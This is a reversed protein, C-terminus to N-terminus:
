NRQGSLKVASLNRYGRALKSIEDKELGSLIRSCHMQMRRGDPARYSKEGRNERAPLKADRSRLIGVM